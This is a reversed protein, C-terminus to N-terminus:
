IKLITWPQGQACKKLAIHTLAHAIECRVLIYADNYDCLYSKVVKRNYITENGVDYNANSQHKVINWKRTVFRSDSGENSLNLINQHVM